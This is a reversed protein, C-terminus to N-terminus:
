FPGTSPPHSARLLPASANGLQGLGRLFLSGRLSVRLREAQGPRDGCQRTSPGQQNYGTLMRVGLELQMINGRGALWLRLSHCLCCISCDQSAPMKAQPLSLNDECGRWLDKDKSATRGGFFACMFLGQPNSGRAQSNGHAALHSGSFVPFFFGWTGGTDPGTFVTLCPTHIEVVGGGGRWGSIEAEGMSREEATTM